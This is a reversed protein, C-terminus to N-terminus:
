ANGFANTLTGENERGGYEINSARLFYKLVGSVLMSYPPGSFSPVYCFIAVERRTEFNHSMVIVGSVPKRASCKM